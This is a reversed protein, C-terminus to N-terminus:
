GEDVLCALENALEQAGLVHLLLFGPRGTDAKGELRTVTGLSLEVHVQSVLM